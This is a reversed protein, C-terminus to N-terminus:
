EKLKGFRWEDHFQGNKFVAQKLVGEHVFGNKELVRISAKNFAYSAAFVRNLQLTDFAYETILKLAPTAIGKGWFPEGLWYGIEGSFRYVDKQAIIGIVGCLEHEFYIGFSLTPNEKDASAIFQQADELAYPHPMKNRLNSWVSKNNALEALREADDQVLKRLQITTMELM